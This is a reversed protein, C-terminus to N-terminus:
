PALINEITDILHVDDNDLRKPSTKTNVTMYRGTKRITPLVESTVWKKFQKATELKSGFVLSYVGSENVMTIKSGKLHPTKDVDQIDSLQM